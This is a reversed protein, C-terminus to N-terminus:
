ISWTGDAVVTALAEEPAVFVCSGEECEHQVPEGDRPADHGHECAAVPKHHHQHSAGEHSHGHETHEAAESHSCVEHPCPHGHHWCCGLVMHVAFTAATLHNILGHM